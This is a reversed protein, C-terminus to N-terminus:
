TSVHGVYTCVHRQKTLAKRKKSAKGAKVKQHAKCAWKEKMKKRAKCTKRKKRTIHVKM